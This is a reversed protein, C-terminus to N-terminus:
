TLRLWSELIGFVSGILTDWLVSVISFALGGMTIGGIAWNSPALWYYDNSKITAPFLIFAIVALFFSAGSIGISLMRYAEKRTMEFLHKKEGLVVVALFVGVLIALAQFGYIVDKYMLFRLLPEPMFSIFIAMLMGVFILVGKKSWWKQNKTKEPM